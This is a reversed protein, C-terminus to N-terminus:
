SLRSSFKENWDIIKSIGITGNKSYLIDGIDPNSRKILKDHQPCDMEFECKDNKHKWMKLGKPNQFM